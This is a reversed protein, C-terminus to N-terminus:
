DEKFELTIKRALESPPRPLPDSKLVANYVSNDYASNGSSRTIRASIVGGSALLRVTVTCKLRKATHLPKRWNREIKQKVALRFTANERSNSSELREREMAELM